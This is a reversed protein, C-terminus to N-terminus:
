GRYGTGPIRPQWQPCHYTEQVQETLSDWIRFVDSKTKTALYEAKTNRFCAMGGWLGHGYPSYDSYACTICM